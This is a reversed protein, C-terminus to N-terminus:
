PGANREIRDVTRQLSETSKSLIALHRALDSLGQVLQLHAAMAQKDNECQQHNLQEIRTTPVRYQNAAKLLLAVGEDTLGESAGVYPMVIQLTLLIVVAGIGIGTKNHGVFDKM